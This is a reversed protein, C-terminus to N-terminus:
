EPMADMLENLKAMMLKMEALSPSVGKGNGTPLSTPAPTRTGRTVDLAKLAKQDAGPLAHLYKETTSISAHGLREKVVQLDAGGALLWSAHAHRLHHPTVHFGLDAKALAKAWINARFWDNSIHGDTDVSRPTRPSDKGAARRSARYAALADKCHQCRCRGAGYANPTGHRYRRGKDNPETFGLTAPDPLVEPLTRRMPGAPPNYAFLLDDPGLGLCTVHQQLSSVLHPALMLTRWEKDKPYNKVIFRPGPPRAKAKLEVAVRSVTVIGTAFDLDKVRLETLEGWRLGSEIDTEVLLRMTDDVLADHIREYQEVTITRRPKKPVPPTKVGKGAHLFTIQDNLATTLIASLVVKAERITPPRAGYQRQLDGVWERVHGPLIDVMRMSGLEPLIYRNLLYTYSERTKAEIVHNPFWEKEVYHRLTQRGRKPDAVRGASLGSEAKQWARNALRQSTFTGASREKGRLDRYMATYHTLGDQRPRVKLWGVHVVLITQDAFLGCVKGSWLPCERILGSTFGAESRCHLLKL